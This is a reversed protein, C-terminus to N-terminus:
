VMGWAPADTDDLEGAALVAILLGGFIGVMGDPGTEPFILLVYLYVVDAVSGSPSVNFYVKSQPSPTVETVLDTLDPV